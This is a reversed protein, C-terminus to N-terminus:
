LTATSPQRTDISFRGPGFATVYLLGAILELCSFLTIMQMQDSIDRVFFLAILIVFGILAAAAQRTYWGIILAIGAVVELLFALLVALAPFPIGAAASAEVQFGFLESGPIKYYASHLFIVGLLIRGVVPAWAIFSSVYNQM